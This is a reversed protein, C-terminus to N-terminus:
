ETVGTVIAAPDGIVAVPRAIGRVNALAVPGFYRSDFSGASYSSFLWAEGPQVIYRGAPWGPLTPMAATNPLPEGNVTVPRGQEFVVADGAVAAVSKLLPTVGSGECDGAALYGREGMLRVIPSAPPCVEVLDGPKISLPKAAKVLWLGQPASDSFNLRLGAYYGTTIGVGIVAAACLAAIGFRRDKM